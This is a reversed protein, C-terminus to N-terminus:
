YDNEDGDDVIQHQRKNKHFKSNEYYIKSAHEEEEENDYYRNTDQIPPAYYPQYIPQQPMMYYVPAPRPAPMMQHPHNHNAHRQKRPLDSVPSGSYPNKDSNSCNKISIGDDSVVKCKESVVAWDENDHETEDFDPFNGNEFLNVDTDDDDEFIEPTNKHHPEEDDEPNMPMMPYQEFGAQPPFSSYGPFGPYPQMPYPQMPYPQMPYPQMPYQQM